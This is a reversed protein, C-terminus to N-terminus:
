HDIRHKDIRTVDTTISGVQTKGHRSVDVAIGIDGALRRRALDSKRELIRNLASLIRVQSEDGLHIRGSCLNEIRRKEAVRGAEARFIDASRFDLSDRNPAIAPSGNGACCYVIIVLTIKWKGIIM